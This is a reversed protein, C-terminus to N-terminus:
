SKKLNEVNNMLIYVFYRRLHRMTELRQVILHKTGLCKALCIDLDDAMLFYNERNQKFFIRRGFILAPIIM